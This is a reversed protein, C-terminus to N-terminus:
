RPNKKKVVVVEGGSFSEHNYKETQFVQQFIFFFGAHFPTVRRFLAREHGVFVIHLRIQLM